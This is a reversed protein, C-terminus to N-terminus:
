AIKKKHLHGALPFGLKSYFRSTKGPNIDTSISLSADVVGNVTCWEHYQRIFTLAARSGRKEPTVYLILDAASREESFYFDYIHAVFHGVLQKGQYAVLILSTELIVQAKYFGRLKDQNIPINKYSSEAHFLEAQVMLDDIDNLTAQRIQLARGEHGASALINTKCSMAAIPNAGELTLNISM